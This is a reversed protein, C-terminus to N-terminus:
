YAKERSLRRKPMALSWRPEIFSKKQVPLKKKQLQKMGVGKAMTEIDLTNQFAFCKM